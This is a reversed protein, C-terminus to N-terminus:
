LTKIYICTYIVQIYIYIYIYIYIVWFLIFDQVSSTQKLHHTCVDSPFLVEGSFQRVEFTQIRTTMIQYRQPDYLNEKTTADLM